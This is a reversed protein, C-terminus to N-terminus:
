VAGFLTGANEAIVTVATDTALGALDPEAKNITCDADDTATETVGFLAWTAEPPCNCNEADTEPLVFGATTHLIEPGPHLPVPQPVIV